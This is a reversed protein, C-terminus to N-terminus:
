SAHQKEANLLAATDMFHGREGRRLHAKLATVTFVLMLLGRAKLGSGGEERRAWWRSEEWRAM